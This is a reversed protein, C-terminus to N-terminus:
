RNMNSLTTGLAPTPTVRRLNEEEEFPRAADVQGGVSGTCITHDGSDVVTINGVTDVTLGSPIDFRVSAGEHGRARKAEPPMTTTM